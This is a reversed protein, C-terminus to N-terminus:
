LPTHDQHIRDAFRQELVGLKVRFTTRDGRYYDIAYEVPLGHSYGLRRIMLAPSGEPVELLKAKQEDLTVAEITQLADTPKRGMQGMIEYVSHRRLDRDLFGRFQQEPLWTSAMVMPEGAATRIRCLHIVKAGPKLGLHRLVPSEPDTIKEIDSKLLRSGPKMGRYVMFETFSFLQDLAQDVRPEAVFSGVARRRYILGDDELLSLARRVTERAVDFREALDPESPLRSHPALQQSSIENRIAEAIEQYPHAPM